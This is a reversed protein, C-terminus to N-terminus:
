FPDYWQYSKNIIVCSIDVNIHLLALLTRWSASLGRYNRLPVRGNLRIDRREGLTLAPHLPRIDAVSDRLRESSWGFRSLLRYQRHVSISIYQVIARHYHLLTLFLPSSHVIICSPVKDETWLYAVCHTCNGNYSDAGPYRNINMCHM